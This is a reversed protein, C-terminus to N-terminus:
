KSPTNTPTRRSRRSSSRCRRSGFRFHGAFHEILIGTFRELSGFMARHIMVPTMKESDGGIYFAGFRGPM